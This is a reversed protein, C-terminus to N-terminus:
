VRQVCGLTVKGKKRISIQAWIFTIFTKIKLFILIFETTVKIILSKIKSNLQKMVQTFIINVACKPMMPISFTNQLLILFWHFYLFAVGYKIIQTHTHKYKEM